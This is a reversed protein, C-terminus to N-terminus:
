NLREGNENFNYEDCQGNIRNTKATYNEGNFVSGEQIMGIVEQDSYNELSDNNDFGFLEANIILDRTEQLNTM